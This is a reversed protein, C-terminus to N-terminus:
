RVLMDWKGPDLFAKTFIDAVQLLTGFYFLDIYTLRIVESLWQINVRHTHQM